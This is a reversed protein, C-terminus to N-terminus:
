VTLCRMRLHLAHTIQVKSGSAILSKYPHWECSKVDWGHGTLVREEQYLQWDWIRLTSDDSCSVFKTERPSFSLGRVPQGGHSSFAQINTMSQEWYKIVGTNDATVMTSGSRSWTMARVATDHAQTTAAVTYHCNLM